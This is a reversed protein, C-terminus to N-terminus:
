PCPGEARPRRAIITIEGVAAGLLAACQQVPGLVEHENVWMLEDGVQLGSGELLAGLGTLKPLVEPAQEYRFVLDAPQPAGAKSMPPASLTVGLKTEATPKHVSARVATYAASRGPKIIIKDALYINHVYGLSQEPLLRYHVPEIQVYGNPFARRLAGKENYLREKSLKRVLASEARPDAREHSEQRVAMRSQLTDRLRRAEDASFGPVAACTELDDPMELRPQPFHAWPNEADRYGVFWVAEAASCTFRTTLRKVADVEARYRKSLTPAESEETTSTTPTKRRFLGM